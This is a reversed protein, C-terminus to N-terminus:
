FPLDDPKIDDAMGADMGQKIEDDANIVPLEEGESPVQRSLNVVKIYGTKNKRIYEMALEDGVEINNFATILYNAKHKDDKSLFAVDYYKKVGSEEFWFRIGQVERYSNSGTFERIDDKKEESVLKLIHRGTSQPVGTSDKKALELKTEGIRIGKSSMNETAKKSLESM